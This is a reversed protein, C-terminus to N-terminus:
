SANNAGQAPTAGRSNAEIADKSSDRTIIVVDFRGGGYLDWRAVIAM